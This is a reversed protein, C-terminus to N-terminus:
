PIGFNIVANVLVNWHGRDEGLHVWDMNGLRIEDLDM